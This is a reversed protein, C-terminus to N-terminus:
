AHTLGTLRRALPLLEDARTKLLFADISPSAMAKVRLQEHATFLIIKGNPALEKLRPAAELGTLRGMLSHDLIILGLDPGIGQALEIAEEASAVEGLIRLRPEMSLNVRILTRVDPDDEVVALVRIQDPVALPDTEPADAVLPFRVGFCAGQPQVPEYWVEGDNAVALGRVISLGLGSGKERRTAETDARAFKEFLRPVFENPVGQGSDCVRMEVSENVAAAIVRIPPSGYRIANGVLNAIIRQLHDPDARVRLGSAVWTEVEALQSYFEIGRAITEDIRTEVKNVTVAGAEVESITLLDDVLRSLHRAQREIIELFELKDSEDASDWTRNLATAFGLISTIPSRLDHSAITVFDRMAQNVAQLEENARELEESYRKKDTIDRVLALAFRGAVQEGEIPTLTLEVVIESGDKRIAPLEVVKGSDVLPGHGTEAYRRMGIRHRDKLNDPVLMEMPSGIAEHATYGFIREAAENWLVIRGTQPAGVIVADRITSFLRGIGLADPKVNRNKGTGTANVKHDDGGM